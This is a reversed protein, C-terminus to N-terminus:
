DTEPKESLYQIVYGRQHPDNTPDNKWAMAEAQSDFAEGMPYNWISGLRSSEGKRDEGSGLVPPGEQVYWKGDEYTLDNEQAINSM